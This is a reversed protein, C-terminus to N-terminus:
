EPIATGSPQIKLYIQLKPGNKLLSFQTEINPANTRPMSISYLTNPFREDAKVIRGGSERMKSNMIDKTLEESYSSSDGVKFDGSFEMGIENNNRIWVNMHDLLTERYYDRLHIHRHNIPQAIFQARGGYLVLKESNRVIPHQFIEYNDFRTSFEKLPKPGLISSIRDLEAYSFSFGCSELIEAQIKLDVPLRYIKPSERGQDIGHWLEKNQFELKKTYIMARNGILDSVVKKFGIHIPVQDYAPTLYGLTADRWPNRSKMQLETKWPVPLNEVRYNAKFIYDQPYGVCFDGPLVEHQNNLDWPVLQKHPVNKQNSICRRLYYKNKNLRIGDVAIRLTDLHLPLSKEARRFKPSQSAISQRKDAKVKSGGSERMKSHMMEKITNVSDIHNGVRDTEIDGSFEMGIENNNTIWVNMHNILVQQDYDKLHIHRHNIRQLNFHVRGSHLVLKESNLIIPHTFIEYNDLKTSFEKLPKPGLITSIVDLEDFSFSFGSSELVEAHIKLDVPLRYIKFNEVRELFYNWYM